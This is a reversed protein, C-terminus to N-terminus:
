GARGNPGAYVCGEQCTDRSVAIEALGPLRNHLRGWLWQAIVELTPNELGKIDNLFRHDLDGRVEDLAASVNDFHVVVGTESEPEGEVTVRVRFSHGHVNANAHGAPAAPLRHAAEFTFEKYIRM